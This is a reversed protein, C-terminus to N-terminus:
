DSLVTIRIDLSVIIQADLGTDWRPGSDLILQFPTVKYIIYLVIPPM